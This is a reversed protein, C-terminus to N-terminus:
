KQVSCMVGTQAHIPCLLQPSCYMGQESNNCCWGPWLTPVGGFGICWSFHILLRKTIWRWMNSCQIFVPGILLLNRYSPWQKLLRLCLLCIRNMVMNCCIIGVSVLCWTSFQIPPSVKLAIHDSTSVPQKLLLTELVGLGQRPCFSLYTSALQLCELFSTFDISQCLKCKIVSILYDDDTLIPCCEELHPALWVQWTLPHSALVQAYILRNLEEMSIGGLTDREERLLSQAHKSKATLLEMIHAM